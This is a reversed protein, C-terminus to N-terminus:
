LPRKPALSITGTAINGVLFPRFDYGKEHLKESGGLQWDLLAIVRIVHCGEEEAAEIARFVSAGTSVADEVIVVNAQSPTYGETRKQTGHAREQARVIFGDLKRGNLRATLMTAAIIPDAGLTPGGIADVQLMAISEWVMEGVLMLGESSLTIMRGDFYYASKQGSTFAYEGELLCAKALKLLREQGKSTM